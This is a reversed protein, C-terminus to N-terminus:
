FVKGHKRWEREIQATIDNWGQLEKFHGDDLYNVLWFKVQNVTGERAYFRVDEKGPSKIRWIVMLKDQQGSSVDFRGTGWELVAKQYKRNHVGEIALVVDKSTFFKHEDHWSEGFIILRQHWFAMLGDQSELFQYCYDEAGEAHACSDDKRIGAGADEWGDFDMCGSLCHALWQEASDPEMSKHCIRCKGEVNEFIATLIVMGEQGFCSVQKVMEQEKAFPPPLMQLHFSMGDGNEMLRGIQERLREITVNSSRNGSVDTFIFRSAQPLKTKKDPKALDRVGDWIGYLGVGAMGLGLLFRVIGIGEAMGALGIGALGLGLFTGYAGLILPVPHLRKEKRKQQEEM